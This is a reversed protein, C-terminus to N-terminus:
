SRFDKLQPKVSKDPGGFITNHKCQWGFAQRQAWRMRWLFIWKLVLAARSNLVRSLAARTVGLHSAAQTVSLNEPMYARLVEGPHAPNHMDM